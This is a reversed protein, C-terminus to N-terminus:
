VTAVRWALATATKLFEVPGVQGIHMALLKSFLGPSQEFSKLTRRQLVNSRDMLLMFDSMFRPRRSIERHAKEYIRLDQQAIANALARAQRFALCMGEGTIPDVTGSADGILAVNGSTVGRLKRVAALSGRERTSAEAGKLRTQLMPFQALAEFIRLQPERSMLVVCIESANVPTVYFQSRRGWYIEMYESWPAIRYHRRYSFRESNRVFCDLGVWSRVRSQTGDAGVIWRAKLRSQGFDITDRDISRVLTGWLLSAGVEQAREILL